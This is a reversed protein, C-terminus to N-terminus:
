CQRALSSEGMSHTVFVVTSAGTEDLIEDVREKLRQASKANPQRWDYGFAYVPCKFMSSKLGSELAELIDLYFEAVVGAWGRKCRDASLGNGSDLVTGPNDAELWEAKEEPTASLWDSVMTLKSDPDWDVTSTSKGSDPDTKATLRLRSGMIGPLFVGPTIRADIVNKKSRALAFMM